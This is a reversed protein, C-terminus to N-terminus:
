LKRFTLGEKKLEEKLKPISTKGIGHLALIEAESYQSLNTATTIGEHELARRAPAPLLALFGNEPKREQECQPCTPCDSSKYYQHGEPCTRLTKKM